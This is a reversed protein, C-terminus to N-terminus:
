TIKSTGNEGFLIQTIEDALCEASSEKNVKIRVAALKYAKHRADYLRRASQEDRALPRLCGANLIRRWCLEFPADLWVTLADCELVLTRNHELAWTGGGLAIIFAESESLVKRLARTELRRFNAEGGDEIIVGVSRGERAEIFQDLDIMSCDLKRALARAVTTKGAGMFGTIIIQRHNTSM